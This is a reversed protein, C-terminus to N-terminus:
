YFVTQIKQRSQAQGKSLNGAMRFQFSVMHQHPILMKTSNHYHKAETAQSPTWLALQGLNSVAQTLDVPSMMFNQKTKQKKKGKDQSEGSPLNPLCMSLLWVTYCQQETQNLIRLNPLLNIQEQKGAARYSIQM